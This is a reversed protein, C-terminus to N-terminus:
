KNIKLLFVVILDRWFGRRQLSFLRLEVKRWLLPEGSSQHKKTVRRQITRHSWHRQKCQSARLYVCYELHSRMLTSSSLGGEIQQGSKEKQLQSFPQSEPSCTCVAVDHWSKWRGISGFGGRCLQVWIMWGEIRVSLKSQRFGPSLGQLQSMLNVQAWNQLRDLYRKNSNERLCILYVPTM